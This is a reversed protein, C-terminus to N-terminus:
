RTSARSRAARSRSSASRSCSARSCRARQRRHVAHARAAARAPAGRAARGRADRGHRDQHVGVPLRAARAAAVGAARQRPLRLRDARARADEQRSRLVRAADASEDIWRGAFVALIVLALGILTAELVRGPRLLTMYLGMAIAIPITAAVTSTAWPSGFMANVVVLGLVGILIIMIALVGVLAAAGGIPGIEERVMQGLSKGDRRLSGVLITFDQVAGGIVVGILIYLTGPLYGFQAALIPGVLPGPGAIAAFHHGFVVWRHTPVYDKGDRLRHAPTARADDLAFVRRALFGSYFRFGLAYICLAAVLFWASSIAEGRATAIVALAGAGALAAAVWGLRRLVRMLTGRRGRFIPLTARCVLVLTAACLAALSTSCWARHAGDAPDHSLGLRVRDRQAAHRGAARLRVVGRVDGRVPDRHRARARRQEGLVPLMVATTAANSAFASLAVTVISAAVAQAFPPAARLAELQAGLWHSLGSAQICAALSFGGGLLVLTEWQVFRLSAPELVRRREVRWAFLVLSALMAVGAEVHATALDPLASRACRTPSRSASSGSRRPRRPVGGLVIKEGRSCRASGRARARSRAGASTRTRARGRARDRWLALWVIPLFLLVFPVGIAAFELFSVEVGRQALFGSLQASPVTGIKTGIGGVNAGYAVALMLAAGYGALRRGSEREFEAILALGIPFMMAATATNSIWLSVTATALLLGFLLRRADTGVVRMVQLAIRRHLGWQQMAAAIGM